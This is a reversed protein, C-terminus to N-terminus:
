RDNHDREAQDVMLIAHAAEKAEGTDGATIRDYVYKVAEDRNAM